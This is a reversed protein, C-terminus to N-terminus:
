TVREVKRSNIQEPETAVVPVLNNRPLPLVITARLGAGPRDGLTVDGGHARAIGRAVALGLGAGGSERNRSQDLRQFARFAVERLEEPIGPGRDDIEVRVEDRGVDVRVDAREGYKLANEVLNTICRRMAIRRCDYPIRRYDGFSVSQGRDSMEDCISQLLAALDVRVTPEGNSDEKVFAIVEAIMQEMQSLDSLHKERQKPDEILEGRLRLRTIPTRLDHSIAALMQTRDEVFRQLRKQMGNFADIAMRVELPGEEKIPQANVDSGLRVAAEAFSRFPSTLRRIAWISLGAIALVMSGILLIEELHWFEITVAYAALVNLWTGDALRLSVIFTPDSALEQVVSAVPESSNGKHWDQSLTASEIAAPEGGAALYGVRISRRASDPTAASVFDHLLRTDDEDRGDSGLWSHDALVVPMNSGRFHRVVHARREPETDELLTTIVAIRDAIRIAQLTNLAETRLLTRHGVALITTVILLAVFLIILQVSISRFKIPKV